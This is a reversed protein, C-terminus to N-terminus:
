DRDIGADIIKQGGHDESGKKLLVREVELLGTLESMPSQLGKLAHLAKEVQELEFGKGLFDNTEKAVKGSQAMIIALIELIRTYSEKERPNQLNSNM